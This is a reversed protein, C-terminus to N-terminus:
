SQRAPRFGRGHPPWDSRGRYVLMSTEFMEEATLGFLEELLAIERPSPYRLGGCLNSVESPTIGLQAAVQRRTLDFYPILKALRQRRRPLAM